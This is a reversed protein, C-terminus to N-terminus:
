TDAKVENWHGFQSVHYNTLVYAVTRYAMGINYAAFRMLQRGNLTIDVQGNRNLKVIFVLNCVFRVLLFYTLSTMRTM